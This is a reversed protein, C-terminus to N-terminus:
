QRTRACSRSRGRRGRGSLDPGRARSQKGRQGKRHAAPIHWLKGLRRDLEPWEMLTTEGTRQATLLLLRTMTARQVAAAREDESRDRTWKAGKRGRGRELAASKEATAEEACARWLIRIEDDRLVRARSTSGGIKEVGAMPDREIIEEAIAWRSAALLLRQLNTAVAPAGAAVARLLERVDARRVDELPLQAIRARKLNTALMQEYSRLTSDTRTRPNQDRAAEIYAAVLEALTGAAGSSGIDVRRVRAAEIIERARDRATKLTVAPHRGLGLMRARGRVRYWIGYSRTGDPFRDNAPYVALYFGPVVRDWWITRGPGPASLTPVNRPTLLVRHGASV